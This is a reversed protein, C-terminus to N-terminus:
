AARLGSAKIIELDLSPAEPQSAIDLICAEATELNNDRAFNLVFAYAMPEIDALARSLV